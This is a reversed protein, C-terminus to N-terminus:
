NELVHLVDDDDDDHEKLLIFLYLGYKEEKCKNTQKCTRREACLFPELTTDM